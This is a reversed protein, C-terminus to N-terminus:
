EAMWDVTFPAPEATAPDVTPLVLATGEAGGLLTVRAPAMPPTLFWDQVQTARIELRVDAGEEFVHDTSLFPLTMRVTEGPPVPEYKDHGNRHALNTMGWTVLADGDYLYAAVFANEAGDLTAALSLGARGALETRTPMKGELVVTSGPMPVLGVSDVLYTGSGDAPAAGIGGAGFDPYLAFPTTETPPWTASARHTGADTLISAAPLKDVGVPKGKLHQDFWALWLVAQDPRPPHQHIWHGYIGLKPATIDNFWWDAMTSKVNTDEFGQYYLVAAKVDGARASFNREAYFSDYVARPDNARASLTPDCLGNAHNMITAIPDSPEVSAMLGITQYGNPSGANEGNPVGGFHWDDYANNVPAVALVAKLAEPAGVAAEVATTGDYSVGYFGVNDDSWEQEAIWDVLTVQDKQENPGWVEVCGGSDGYGRVDATVVAYGRPVWDKILDDNVRIGAKRTGDNYPSSHLVTPFPGEGDPLTVEVHLMQGDHTPVKAYETELVGMTPMSLQSLDLSAVLGDVPRAVLDVTVLDAPDRVIPSVPAVPTARRGAANAFLTWTTPFPDLATLGACQRGGLIPSFWSDVFPPWCRLAGSEKEWLFVSGSREGAVEISARVLTVGAPIEIDEELPLEVDTWVLRLGDPIEVLEAGTPVKSLTIATPLVSSTEVPEGALCGALAPTLLALVVAAARM